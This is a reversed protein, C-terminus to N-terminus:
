KKMNHNSLHILQKLIQESGKEKTAIKSVYNIGEGQLDFFVNYGYTINRNRRYNNHSTASINYMLYKIEGKQKIGEIQEDVVSYILDNFEFRENIWKLLYYHKNVDDMTLFSWASNSYNKDIVENNKFVELMTKEMELSKKFDMTYESNEGDLYMTTTQVLAISDLKTFNKTQTYVGSRYNYLAENPELSIFVNDMTLMREFRSRQVKYADISARDNDSLSYNALFHKILDQSRGVERIEIPVYGQKENLQRYRRKQTRTLNLLVDLNNIRVSNETLDKPLLLSLQNDRNVFLGENYKYLFQILFGHLRDLYADDSLKKLRQLALLSTMNVEISNLSLYTEKFQLFTTDTYASGKDNVFQSFPTANYKAQTILVLLKAQAKILYANSPYKKRLKMVHDLCEIFWGNEIYTNIIVFNALDHYYTFNGIEQHSEEEYGDLMELEIEEKRDATLPHTRMSDTDEEEVEEYWKEISSIANTFFGELFKDGETLSTLATEGSVNPNLDFRLKDFLSVAQNLNVGRDLLLKFGELDAEYEQEKSFAHHELVQKEKNRKWGDSEIKRRFEEFKHTHKNLVHSIEHALLALLETESQITSISAINVYVNGFDNTFANFSPSRTLYVNIRKQEEKGELLFDKLQNLYASITDGYFVEGSKNLNELFYNSRYVFDEYEAKASGGKIQNQKSYFELLAEVRETSAVNIEPPQHSSNYFQELQEEYRQAFSNQVTFLGILFTFILARYAKPNQLEPLINRTQIRVFIAKTYLFFLWM